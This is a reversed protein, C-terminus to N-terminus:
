KFAKEIYKNTWIVDPNTDMPEKIGSMESYKLLPKQANDWLEKNMEGYGSFSDKLSILGEELLAPDTGNFYTTVLQASEKPNERTFEIGKGLARVVKVVLEENQSTFDKMAYVVEWAMNKYEPIEFSSILLKGVGKERAELAFPASNIGGDIVGEKMAGIKPGLGTVKVVELDDSKAGYLEMTYRLFTDGSDGIVNTAMTAGKLVGVKEELTLEKNPDVGKKELLQNNVVIDYTLSSNISQIVEVEKGAQITKIVSSPAAVGFEVQGSILTAMVQAGGGGSALEVEIGEDKFFGKEIAVYLPAFSLVRVPESITIKKVEATEKAPESVSQNATQNAPTNNGGASSTGSTGCGSVALALSLVALSGWARFSKRM